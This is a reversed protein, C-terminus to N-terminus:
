QNNLRLPMLLTTTEEKEEEKTPKLIAATLPNNLYIKIAKTTNHQLAEILYKANYSVTLAEGKYKCDLHEKGSTSSEPDQASVVVGKESFNLVTQKTTRNSFISVRKLCSILQQTDVEAETTNNEPIASNFDPYTEKIIRTSIIFEKYKTTLQNEEVKIKLNEKENISNKIIKLFKAPIIISQKIKTKKNKIFKVLRHGDTSVAMIKEENINLYVGGLAPKLDDRSTAYGTKKIIDLFDKGQLEINDEKEGETTEPFESAERGTIKFTGQNSNIEILHDENTTIKIEENPLAVVIECLKIMPICVQGEGENKIKNISVITQELDTTKIILKNNKVEFYACSLVPLTTRIPVVKQHEALLNQLNDKNISFNM